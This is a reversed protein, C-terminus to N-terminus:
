DQKSLSRSIIQEEVELYLSTKREITCRKSLRKRNM